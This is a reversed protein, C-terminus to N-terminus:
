ILIWFCGWFVNPIVKNPHIGQRKLQEVLEDTKLGNSMDVYPVAGLNMGRDGNNMAKKARKEM